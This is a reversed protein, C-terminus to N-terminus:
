QGMLDTIVTGIGRLCQSSMRSMQRSYSMESDMPSPRRGPQMAPVDRPAIRQSVKNVLCWRIHRARYPLSARVCIGVILSLERLQVRLALQSPPCPVLVHLDALGLCGAARGKSMHVLGLVMNKLCQSHWMMCTM